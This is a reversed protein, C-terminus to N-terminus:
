PSVLVEKDRLARIRRMADLIKVALDVSSVGGSVHVFELVGHIERMCHRYDFVQTRSKANGFFRERLNSFTLNPQGLDRREPINLCRTDGYMTYFEEVTPVSACAFARDAIKQSSMVNNILDVALAENETGSMVGLYWEGWCSIHYHGEKEEGKKKAKEKEDEQEIYRALSLPIQMVDLHINGPTWVFEEEARNKRSLLIDVFTSYWHRAFLWDSGTGKGPGPFRQAFEKAELTCNRPIIGRRFMIDFYTMAQMLLMGTKEPEAISYDPAIRMDGGCNWLLELLTCLFTDFTRTEVLFHCNGQQCLAIVEEVTQPPQGNQLNAVLTRVVTRLKKGAKVSTHQPPNKRLEKCRKRLVEAFNITEPPLGSAITQVQNFVLLTNQVVGHAELIAAELNEPNQACAVRRLLDGRYVVFSINADYPVALVKNPLDKHKRKRYPRFVPRNEQPVGGELEKIIESKREGFLRLEQWPIPRLLGCHQEEKRFDPWAADVERIITELCKKQQNREQVCGACIETVGLRISDACNPPVFKPPKGNCEAVADVFNKHILCVIRPFEPRIEEGSGRNGCPLMKRFRDALDWRQCLEVYWNVWYTDFSSLYMDTRMPINRFRRQSTFIRQLGLRGFSDTNLAPYMQPIDREFFVKWADQQAANEAFLVIQGDGPYTEYFVVGKEPSNRSVIDYACRRTQRPGSRCKLVRCFFRTEAEGGGAQGIYPTEPLAERAQSSFRPTSRSAVREVALQIVTDCFFSESMASASRPNQPDYEGTFLVVAGGLAYEKSITSAINEMAARFDLPPPRRASGTPSPGANPISPQTGCKQLLLDAMVNLSDVVVLLPSQTLPQLDLREQLYYRVYYGLFWGSNYSYNPDIDWRAQELDERKIVCLNEGPILNLGYALKVHELVETPDKELSIFVALNGEQARLHNAVIQLALTTKGSGPGGRLLVLSGTPIGAGLMKDLANIGTKMKWKNDSAM